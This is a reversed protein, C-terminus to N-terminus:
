GIPRFASLGTLSPAPPSATAAAAPQHTRCGCTTRTMSTRTAHKAARCRWPRITPTPIRRRRTSQVLHPATSPHVTSIRVAPKRCEEFVSTARARDGEEVAGGGGGGGGGDGASARGIARGRPASHGSYVPLSPQTLSHAVRLAASVSRECSRLPTTAMPGQACRLPQVMWRTRAHTSHARQTRADMRVQARAALARTRANSRRHARTHSICAHSLGTPACAYQSRCHTCRMAGSTAPTTMPGCSKRISTTATRISTM